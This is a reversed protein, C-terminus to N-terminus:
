KNVAKEWGYNKWSLLGYIPSWRLYWILHVNRSYGEDPIILIVILISLNSLWIIEIKPLLLVLIFLTLKWYCTKM